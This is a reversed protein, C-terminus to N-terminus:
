GCHSYGCNRCTYCNGDPELPHNCDPCVGITKEEKFVKSFADDLEENILAQNIAHENLVRNQEIIAKAIADPCSTCQSGKQRLTSKCQIGKLQDVIVEVPVGSRLSISTLRTIAESQSPCGGSKGTNTMVECIGNDDYNVTVYLNGCGTKVKETVGYLRHPREKPVLVSFSVPKDEKFSAGTSLVQSEKSGDRYVTVGKCGLEYALLFANRVDEKTASNPLNVTKSVGNDTNKQFTAQMIIHQEVPIDHACVFLDKVEQPIEPIHALTGQEYIKKLIEASYIKHDELVKKLYGNVEIFETDLVKRIFAYAFVPEIGSSVDAIISLTGTPAITTVSANRSMLKDDKMTSVAFLPFEGREKALEQSEKHAVDKITNMLEDAIVFSEESGYTVGLRLLMDAFGMVGLGIKRCEKTVRDIDKTPYHNVEIVNDLFRVAKQVTAKLKLWNIQYEGEDSKKLMRVLKM